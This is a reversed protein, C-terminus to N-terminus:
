SVAAGMLKFLKSLARNNIIEAPIMEKAIANATTRAEEYVRRGAATLVAYSVRADRESSERALLGTKEMPLLMRTIGSITLGTKEALDTRRLKEGPAQKLLHLIVFDNFSIGHLSLRDFKRALLAQMKSLNMVLQLSPHITSM